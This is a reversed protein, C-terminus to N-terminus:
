ESRDFISGATLAESPSFLGSDRSHTVLELLGKRDKKFLPHAPPQFRLSNQEKGWVAIAPSFFESDTYVHLTASDKSNIVRVVFSGVPGDKTASLIKKIDDDDLFLQTKTSWLRLKNSKTVKGIPWSHEGRTVTAVSNVVSVSYNLYDIM